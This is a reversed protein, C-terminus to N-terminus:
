ISEAYEKEESLLDPNLIAEYEGKAINNETVAIYIKDTRVTRSVTRIEAYDPRFAPMVGTGSVTSHVILRFAPGAGDPAAGSLYESVASPLIGSVASKEAVAVPYGSFSERLSNGTDILANLRVCRQGRYVTLIALAERPARREIFTSVISVAAFCLVVSVALVVIDIDFYYAGGSYVMGAPSVTLWLVQMMGGFVMSVTLFTFFCRLYKRISGYGFTCLVILATAAIRLIWEFLVPLPPLFIVLGYISGVAAGPLIRLRSASNKMIRASCLLLIYNVFLNIILLVDAYVTMGAVEPINYAAASFYKTVFQCLFFSFPRM